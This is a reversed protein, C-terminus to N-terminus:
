PKAYELATLDDPMVHSSADSSLNMALGFPNMGFLLMFGKVPTPSSAVRFFMMSKRLLLGFQDPLSSRNSRTGGVHTADSDIVFTQARTVIQMSKTIANSLRGPGPISDGTYGGRHSIIGVANIDENKSHPQLLSRNMNRSHPLRTEKMLESTPPIFSVTSRNLKGRKCGREESKREDERRRGLPSLQTAEPSALM